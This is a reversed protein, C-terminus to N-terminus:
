RLVKGTERETRPAADQWDAMLPSMVRLEINLTRLIGILTDLRVSTKGKEVDYLATKGVGSLASLRKRSLGARKRHYNIIDGLDKSDLAISKM